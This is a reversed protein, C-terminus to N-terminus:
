TTFLPTNFILIKMHLPVFYALRIAMKCTLDKTKTSGSKTINVTIANTKTSSLKM